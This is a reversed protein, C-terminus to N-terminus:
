WIFTTIHPTFIDTTYELKYEDLVVSVLEKMKQSHGTVIRLDTDSGWLNEIEETLINRVKPNRIGHLDINRM